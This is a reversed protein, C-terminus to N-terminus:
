GVEVFRTRHQGSDGILEPGSQMCGRRLQVRDAAVRVDIYGHISSPVDVGVTDVCNGRGPM